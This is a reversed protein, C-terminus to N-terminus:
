PRRGMHVWVPAMPFDIRGLAHIGAFGARAMMGAVEGPQPLHNGRLMVGAYFPMVRAALVPDDALEAHALLLLGGPKLAEFMKSLAAQPDHLFHLVSSCWILDCGGGIAEHSLDRGMAELSDSLGAARINDQAVEATESQDCVTGRWGPLRRALAIAVHGPGGGLDLFRGQRPLPPLADMLHLVAPATVVRQEQGIQERAAQAWSGTSAAAGEKTRGDPEFGERLLTCWQMAFRALSRARYQWSQACNEPSADVFFRAALPSAAYGPEAKGAPVHRVLLDMSWLLDLWVATSAANLGLQQAVSAATAPQALLTFLRHELAQELAMAQIPAAALNWFAQLPHSPHFNM